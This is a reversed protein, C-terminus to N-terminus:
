FNQVSVRPCRVRPLTDLRSLVAAALIRDRKHAAWDAYYQLERPGADRVQAM